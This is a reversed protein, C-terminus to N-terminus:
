EEIGEIQDAIDAISDNIVQLDDDYACKDSNIVEQILLAAQALKAIQEYKGM